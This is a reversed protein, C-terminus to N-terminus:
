RSWVPVYRLTRTGTKPDTIEVIFSSGSSAIALITVPVQFSMAGVSTEFDLRMVTKQGVFRGGGLSTGGFRRALFFEPLVMSVPKGDITGTVAVEDGRGVSGHEANVAVVTLDSTPIPDLMLRGLDVEGPALGPVNCEGATVGEWPNKPNVKDACKEGAYLVKDGPVLHRNPVLFRGLYDDPHTDPAKEGYQLSEAVGSSVTNLVFAQFDYAQHELGARLSDNSGPDQQFHHTHEHLAYSILLKVGEEQSRSQYYEAIGPVNFCISAGHVGFQTKAEVKENARGQVQLESCHSGDLDAEYESRDIDKLLAKRAKDSSFFYLAIPDAQDAKLNVIEKSQTQVYSKVAQKLGGNAILNKVVDRDFRVNESGVALHSLILIGLISAAQSPKM